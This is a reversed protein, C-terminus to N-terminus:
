FSKDFFLTGKIDSTKRKSQRPFKFAFLAVYVAAEIKAPTTRFRHLM